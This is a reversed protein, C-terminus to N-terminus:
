EQPPDTEDEDQKPPLARDARGRLLPLRKFTEIMLQVFNMEALQNDNRLQIAGLVSVGLVTGIAVLGFNAGASFSVGYINLVVLAAVLTAVVVVFSVLYFSGSLWPNNKQPAAPPQKTRPAKTDMPPRRKREDADWERRKQRSSLDEIGDLLDRVSVKKKLEPVVIELENMEEYALLDNYSILVEPHSPVPIKRDIKITFNGNIEDLASRIVALFARRSHENGIVSIFIRRDVLDAKVRARNEKNSLYVGTKWYYQKQIYQNMRVIFRSIISDPLTEYHYQFALGDQENWPVDLANEDDHLHRPILYHDKRDTFEFCLEFHRM